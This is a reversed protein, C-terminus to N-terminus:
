WTWQPRLRGKRGRQPGSRRRPPAGITFSERLNIQYQTPARNLFYPNPKICRCGEERSHPCVYVDEIRVGAKALQSVVHANVSDVEQQMQRLSGFTESFCVGQSPDRVHGRDEIITGDRDLFVAKPM